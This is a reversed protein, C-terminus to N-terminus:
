PSESKFGLTALGGDDRKGWAVMAEVVRRAPSDDDEAARIVGWWPISVGERTIPKAVLTGDSIEPEVAWRSLISIGFGARVLDIIAEPV